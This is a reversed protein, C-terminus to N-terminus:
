AGTAQSRGALASAVIGALILGMGAFHYGHIAEGLLATSLLAGFLPMLTIAQGARGAGLIRTAWNYILYAVISPFLCVYAFAGLTGASWVIREGALHEILAFPAMVVVGILFTAALLSLPAVKPAHRLWVTYFAWCIVASLVLVDGAGLHLTLLHVPDGQFVIVVVGLTSVAVGLRQTAPYRVKNVLRDFVLVGAPIAAQLLLANTASTYHLGSYLLANFGGIGIVGLALVSKWGERLLPWDRELGRWAFPLIILSAGTWRILSLTLPPVDDRVARGIISNGAWLLMVLVLLAFATLESRSLSRM